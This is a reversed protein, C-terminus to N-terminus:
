PLWALNEEDEALWLDQKEKEKRDEEKHLAMRGGYSHYPVDSGSVKEIEVEPNLDQFCKNLLADAIVRDGHNEKAGTPDVETDGKSHVITNGRNVYQRCEDVADESRNVFKTGLDQRYGELLISKNKPDSHWGPRTSKTKKVNLDDQRYYINSYNLKIIEDTFIQGGGGNTEWNLFAGHFWKCLAVCYRAFETPRIDHATLEVVKEKSGCNGIAISSNSAGTGFSIDVGAAYSGYAPPSTPSQIITWLKVKGKENEEFHSVNIENTDKDYKFILDGVLYPARVYYMESRRIIDEDFFQYDAGLYDIDLEQAISQKSNRRICEKDYWPSRIKGDLVFQFDDPFDYAEDIIHLRFPSDKIDPNDQISGYLGESKDPHISWHFRLKNGICDQTVVRYYATGVGKPTGNFIRSETVDATSNLIKFGKDVIPFEDLFISTRRGGRALDDTTARGTITSGNDLHVFTLFTRAINGKLWFPLEKLILDIKWFLCDPDGKNDVLAEIASAMLFSNDKRFLFLYTYVILCIWSAGMDRSKEIALDRPNEISDVMDLIADEQYPYAIFPVIKIKKRPDYTWCFVNVFFLIDEECMKKIRKRYSKATVSVTRGEENQYQYGNKCYNLVKIRFDINAKLSKPVLHNYIAKPNQESSGHTDLYKRRRVARSRNRLKQLNQSRVVEM